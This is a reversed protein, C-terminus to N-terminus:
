FGEPLPAERRWNIRRPHTEQLFRALTVESYQRLRELVQEAKDATFKSSLERIFDLDTISAILPLSPIGKLELPRSSDVAFVVGKKGVVLDVMSTLETATYIGPKAPTVLAAPAAAKKKQLLKM